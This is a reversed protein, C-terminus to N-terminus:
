CKYKRLRELGYLLGQRPNQGGLKDILAFTILSAYQDGIATQSNGEGIKNRPIHQYYAFKNTRCAKCACDVMDCEIFATALAVIIDALHTQVRGRVREFGAVYNIHFANPERTRPYRAYVGNSCSAFDVRYTYEGYPVLCIDTAQEECPPNACGSNLYRATGQACKNITELWVDVQTVYTTDVHKLCTHPPQTETLAPRVFLYAPGEIIAQWNNAGGTTDIFVSLPRIQHKLEPTGRYDGDAPLFYVLVQDATTNDPVPVIVAFEDLLTSGDTRTLTYTNRKTRVCTGFARVQRHKPMVSYNPRSFHLPPQELAHRENTICTPCLFTCTIDSFVEEARRIGQMFDDRSIFGSQWAHQYICACEDGASAAKVPYAPPPPPSPNTAERDIGAMRWPDVGMLQAYETLTLCTDSYM